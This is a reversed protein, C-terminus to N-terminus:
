PLRQWYFEKIKWALLLFVFLFLIVFVGIFYRNERAPEAVYVLFTVLDQLSHDLEDATMEGKGVHRMQLITSNKSGGRIAIVHGILPELVNPMAVNPVLGNNSGFPRSSDRYFSKLYAMIWAAGKEKASLTLDPPIAGFWRSADKFPMSVRIPEFSKAHTFVLNNFFLDTDVIGDSLTLDLSRALQNYRMYLLSHCGGCYNMFFNAGRQLAAKDQGHFPLSAPNVAATLIASTLGVALLFLRM